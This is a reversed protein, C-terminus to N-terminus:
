SDTGVYRMGERSVDPPPQVQVNNQRQHTFTKFSCLFYTKTTLLLYFVLFMGSVPFMCQVLLCRNKQTVPHHERCPITCIIYIYRSVQM